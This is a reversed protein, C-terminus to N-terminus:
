ANTYKYPKSTREKYLIFRRTRSIQKKYAVKELIFMDGKDQHDLTM